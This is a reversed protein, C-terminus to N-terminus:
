KSRVRALCFWRLLYIDPVTEGSKGEDALVNAFVGACPTITGSEASM